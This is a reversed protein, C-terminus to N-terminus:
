FIARKKSPKKKCKLNYYDYQCNETYIKRGFNKVYSKESNLEGINLSLIIFSLKWWRKQLTIAIAIITFFSLSVGSDSEIRDLFFLSESWYKLFTSIITELFPIGGTLANLVFLPFVSIYISSFLPNILLSGIHCSEGNLTTIFHLSLNLFFVTRVPNDKFIMITGWFLLSYLFSGPSNSVNGIILSLLLCIIFIINSSLKFKFYSSLKTLLAFITVRELSLYSGFSEIWFYFILLIFFQLFVPFVLLPTLASLHLGSPTLLHILGYKKLTSKLKRDVGRKDGNISARYLKFSQGALTSSESLNLDIYSKKKYFYPNNSLQLSLIGTFGLLALYKM